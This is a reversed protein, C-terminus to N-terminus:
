MARNLKGGVDKWWLDYYGGIKLKSADQVTLSYSGQKAAGTAQAPAPCPMSDNMLLPWRAPPCFPRASTLLRLSPLVNRQLFDAVRQLRNRSPSGPMCWLRLATGGHDAPRGEQHQGM